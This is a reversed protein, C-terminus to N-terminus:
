GMPDQVFKAYFVFCVAGCGEDRQMLYIVWEGKM